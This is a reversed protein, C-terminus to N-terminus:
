KIVAVKEFEQHGGPSETTILYVGSAVWNGNRNHADWKTWYIGPSYNQNVLEKVFTGNLTYVKIDVNGGNGAVVFRINVVQENPAGFPRISNRDLATNPSIPYANVPQYNTEHVLGETVAQSLPVPLDPPRDFAQVLYTYTKGGVLTVQDFYSVPNSPVGGVVTVPLIVPPFKVLDYVAGGDESRYLVYGGLPYMTASDFNLQGPPTFDAAQWTLTNGILTQTNNTNQGVAVTTNLVVPPKAPLATVPASSASTTGNADVTYVNYVYFNKDVTGTDTYNVGQFGTKITQASGPATGLERTIFYTNGPAGQYDWRLQVLGDGSVAILNNVPQPFVFQTVANSFPGLINNASAPAVEYIYSVGNSVTGDVYTINISPNTTNSLPEVISGVQVFTPTAGPTAPARYVAYGTVPSTTPVSLPPWVLQNRDALPTLSLTVPQIPIITQPGSLASGGSANQADMWYLYASGVTVSADVYIGATPTITAVLVPTTTPYANRYINYLTVPVDGVPPVWAVTISNSSPQLTPHPAAPWLTVALQASITPVASLGAGNNAVVQYQNVYGPIGADEIFSVPAQ